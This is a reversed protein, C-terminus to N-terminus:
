VLTIVGVLLHEKIERKYFLLDNPHDSLSVVNDRLEILGFNDDRNGEFGLLSMFEEITYDKNNSQVMCIANAFDLKSETYFIDKLPAGKTLLFKRVDEIPKDTLLGLIRFM